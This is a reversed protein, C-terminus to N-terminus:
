GHNGASATYFIKGQLKEKAQLLLNDNNKDICNGWAMKAIAYVAGLAKFSGLGLRNSEDIATLSKIGIEASIEKLNLLNVEDRKPCQNFFKLPKTINDSVTRSSLPDIGDNFGKTVKSNLVIKM